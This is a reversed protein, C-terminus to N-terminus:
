IPIHRNLLQVAIELQLQANLILYLFTLILFHTNFLLINASM